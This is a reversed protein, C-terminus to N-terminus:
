ANNKRVYRKEQQHVIIISIEYLLYLPIAVLIMTFPDTTPTIIASLSLGVVLAHKRFQKLMKSGIIGIKALVSMLVPLEFLLGTLFISSSFVSLYSGLTITNKVSDSITYNGLFVVSLPTIIFYAFASGLLFLFILILASRKVIRSENAYLAPKVFLWLQFVIFPMSIVFGTLASLTIHAMFQGALQTNILIFDISVAEGSGFGFFASLDTLWQYTIFNPDLLALLFHDFLIERFSFAVAFFILFVIVSRILYKRLENLHDWFGPENNEM